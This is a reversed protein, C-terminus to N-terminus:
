ERDKEKEREIEGKRMYHSPSDKRRQERDFPRISRAKNRLLEGGVPCIEEGGEGEEKKM